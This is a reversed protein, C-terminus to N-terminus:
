GLEKIVSEVLADLSTVSDGQWTGTLDLARLGLELGYASSLQGAHAELKKVSAHVLGDRMESTGVPRQFANALSIPQSNHVGIAVFEPLNHAAFTNQKGTPIAMVSARIYARIGKLALERDGNLNAVLQDLNISAFRYHCASNFEVTGLMGSVAEDAKPFDDVATYFDSERQVVHTSLSHAVQISADVTLDTDTSIMRGFMALDVSNNTTEFCSRLAKKTAASCKDERLEELNDAVAAIFAKISTSSALVLFKMAQEDGGIVSKEKDPKTAFVKQIALRVPQETEVYGVAALETQILDLLNRTRTGLEEDSLLGMQAFAKRQARKLCQSSIRARRTGGFISTKPAGVDDRNLCGPAVNQLINIDVFTTM